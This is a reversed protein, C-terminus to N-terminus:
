EVVAEGLQGNEPVCLVMLNSAVMILGAMNAGAGAKRSRLFGGFGLLRNGV